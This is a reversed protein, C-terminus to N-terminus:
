NIRGNMLVLNLNPMDPDAYGNALFNIDHM